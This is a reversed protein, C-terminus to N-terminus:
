PLHVVAEVHQEGLGLALGTATAAGVVLVSVATWLWWSRYWPGRHVERPPDVVLPAEPALLAALERELRQEHGAGLLGNGESIELEHRVEVPETTGRRHLMRVVVQDGEDVGAAVWLVAEVALNACLRDLSEFGPRPPLTAGLARAAEFAERASPSFTGDLALDARLALSRQWLRTAEGFHGSEVETAALRSLARALGTPHTATAGNSELLEVIQRRVTVAEALELALEHRTATLELSELETVVEAPLAFDEGEPSQPDLGARRMLDHIQSSLASEGGEVIPLVVLLVRPRVGGAVEAGV